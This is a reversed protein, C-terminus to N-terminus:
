QVTRQVESTAVPAIPAPPPALCIAGNAARPRDSGAIRHGNNMVYAFAAALGIHAVIAFHGNRPRTRM